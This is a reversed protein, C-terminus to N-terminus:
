LQITLILFIRYYLIRITPRGWVSLYQFPQTGIGIRFFFLKLGMNIYLFLRNGPGLLVWAQAGHCHPPWCLSPCALLDDEDPCQCLNSTSTGSTPWPGADKRVLENVDCCETCVWLRHIGHVDPSHKPEFVFDTLIFAFEHKHISFM